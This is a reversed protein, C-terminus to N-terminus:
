INYLWSHTSANNTAFSTGNINNNSGSANAITIIGAASVSVKFNNFTGSVTGSTFGVEIASAPRFQAGMATNAVITSNQTSTYSQAPVLMQVINGIRSLTITQGTSTFAGWTFTTSYTYSEQYFALASAAGGTTPFSVTKNTFTQALALLAITDSASVPDPLNITSHQAAPAAVSLTSQFTGATNFTLQLNTRAFGVSVNNITMAGSFTTAGLTKNTLTQIDNLTVVNTPLTNENSSFDLGTPRSTYTWNSGDFSLINSTVPDSSPLDKGGIRNANLDGSNDLRKRKM